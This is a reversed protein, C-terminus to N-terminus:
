RAAMWNRFARSSCRNLDGPPTRACPVFGDAIGDWPGILHAPLATSAVNDVNFYSVFAIDAANAECFDLFGKIFVPNDWGDEPPRTGDQNMQKGWVGFEGIALPRRATNKAWDLWAAIGIPWGQSTRQNINRRWATPTVSAPWSDYYDPGVLRANDPCTVRSNFGNWNEKLPCWYPWLQDLRYAYDASILAQRNGFVEMFADLYRGLAARVLPGDVRSDLLRVNYSRMYDTSGWRPILNLEHAARFVIRIATLRHRIFYDRKFALLKARWVDDLWGEAAIEWVARQMAARETVIEGGTYTPPRCANLWLSATVAARGAPWGTPLPYGSGSCFPSSSWQLGASRGEVLYRHHGRLLWRPITWAAVDGWGKNGEFANVLDLGGGPPLLAALGDLGAHGGLWFPLGSGPAPNWDTAAAVPRVGAALM